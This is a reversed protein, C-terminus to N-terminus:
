KRHCACVMYKRHFTRICSYLGFGEMQTGYCKLAMYHTWYLPPVPIKVGGRGGPFNEGGWTKFFYCSIAYSM